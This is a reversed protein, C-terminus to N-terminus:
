TFLIDGTPLKLTCLHHTVYISFLIPFVCFISGMKMKKIGLASLKVM